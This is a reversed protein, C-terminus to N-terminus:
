AKDLTGEPVPHDEYLLETVENNALTVEEEGCMLEDGTDSMLICIGVDTPTRDEYKFVFEVRALKGHFFVLDGKKIM